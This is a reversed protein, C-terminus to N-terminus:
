RGLVVIASVMGLPADFLALYIATVMAGLALAHPMVCRLQDRTLSRVNPRIWGLMIIAGIIGRVWLSTLPGVADFTTTAVATGFQISKSSALLLVTPRWM